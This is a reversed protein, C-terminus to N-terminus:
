STRSFVLSATCQWCGCRRMQSTSSPTSRRPLTSNENQYILCIFNLKLFLVAGGCKHPRLHPAAGRRSGPEPAPQRRGRVLRGTDASAQRGRRPGCPRGLVRLRQRLRRCPILTLVKLKILPRCTPGAAIRIAARVSAGASLVCHQRRHLGPGLVAGGDVAPLSGMRLSPNADEGSFDCAYCVQSAMKCTTIPELTKFGGSFDCAYCPQQGPVQLELASWESASDDAGAGAGGAPLLWTSDTSV